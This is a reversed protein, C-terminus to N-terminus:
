LLRGVMCLLHLHSREGMVEVLSVMRYSLGSPFPILVRTNYSDEGENKVSVTVNVDLTVGVVVQSVSYLFSVTVGIKM